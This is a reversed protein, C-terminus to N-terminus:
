KSYGYNNYKRSAARPGMDLRERVDKKLKDPQDHYKVVKKFMTSVRNKGRGRRVIEEQILYGKTGKGIYDLALKDSKKTVRMKKKM